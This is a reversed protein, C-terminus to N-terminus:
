ERFLGEGRVTKLIELAELYSEHDYSFHEAM